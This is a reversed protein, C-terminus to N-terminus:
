QTKENSITNEAQNKNYLKMNSHTQDLFTAHLRKQRFAVLQGLPLLALRLFSHHTLEILDIIKETAVNAVGKDSVGEIDDNTERFDCNLYNDM